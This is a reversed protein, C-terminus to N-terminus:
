ITKIKCGECHELICGQCSAPVMDKITLQPSHHWCYPDSARPCGTDWMAEGRCGGRCYSFHQCTTCPGVIWHKYDQIAQRLPSKLIADLDDQFINGYKITPHGVCPLVDGTVTIHVGTEILTCNHGYSPPVLAQPVLEPYYKEDWQLMEQYLSMAEALSVDLKDGRSFSPGPKSLEMIPEFGQSRAWKFVEMVCGAELLPRLLNLQVCIKGQWYKQVNDWARQKLEFAGQKGLVYDVLNKHKSNIAQRHMSIVLNPLAVKQCYKYNAFKIGNTVLIVKSMHRLGVKLISVLKPHLTPEGGLTYLEKLNNIKAQLIIDTLQEESLCRFPPCEKLFFCQVCGLNCGDIIDVGIGNAEGRFFPM